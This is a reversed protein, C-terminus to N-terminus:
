PTDGQTGDPPTAIWDLQDKSAKVTYGVTALMAPIDFPCLCTEDSLESGAYGQACIPVINPFREVFENTNDIEYGDIMLTKCMTREEVPPTPLSLPTFLM